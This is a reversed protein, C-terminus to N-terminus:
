YYVRRSDDTNEFSLGRIGPLDDEYIPYDFEEETVYRFGKYQGADMLAAELIHCVAYRAMPQQGPIKLFNNTWEVLKSVEITQRAM